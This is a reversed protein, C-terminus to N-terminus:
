IPTVADDQILSPFILPGLDAVRIAVPILLYGASSSSKNGQIGLVLDWYELDIGWHYLAGPDYKVMDLIDRPDPGIEMIVTLGYYKERRFEEILYSFQGPGPFLPM